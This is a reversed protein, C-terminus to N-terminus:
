YLYRIKHAQTQSLSGCGASCTADLTFPDYALNLANNGSSWRPPMITMNVEAKLFGQGFCPNFYSGTKEKKIRFFM